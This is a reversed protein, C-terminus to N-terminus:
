VKEYIGRSGVRKETGHILKTGEPVNQHEKSVSPVGLIVKTASAFLVKKLVGTLPALPTTTPTPSTKQTQVISGNGEDGRM